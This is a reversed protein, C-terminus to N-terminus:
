KAYGLAIGLWARFGEYVLLDETVLRGGVWFQGDPDIKLIEDGNPGCFRFSGHRDRLGKGVTFSVDGGPASPMIPIGPPSTEIPVGGGGELATSHDEHAAPMASERKLAECGEPTARITTGVLVAWQKALLFKQVSRPIQNARVLYPGCVKELYGVLSPSLSQTM